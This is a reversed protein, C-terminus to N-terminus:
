KKKENLITEPLIEKPNSTNYRGERLQCLLDYLANIGNDENQYVVARLLQVSYYEEWECLYRVENHFYFGWDLQFVKKYDEQNEFPLPLQGHPNNTLRYYAAIQDYIPRLVGFEFGTKRLLTHIKKSLDNQYQVLRAARLYIEAPHSFLFGGIYAFSSEQIRILLYNDDDPFYKSM